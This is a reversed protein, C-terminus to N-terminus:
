IFSCVIGTLVNLKVVTMRYVWIHIIRDICPLMSLALTSFPNTQCHREHLAKIGSTWFQFIPISARNVSIIDQIIFYRPTFPEKHQWLGSAVSVSSAHSPHQIILTFICSVKESSLDNLSYSIQNLSIGALQTQVKTRQGAGCSM